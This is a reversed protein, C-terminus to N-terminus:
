IKENKEGLNFEKQDVTVMTDNHSGGHAVLLIEKKIKEFGTKYKIKDTKMEYPMGNTNWGFSICFGKPKVIRKIEHAYRSFQKIKGFGDYVENIQHISYPPDFLIGDISNNDFKKLFELADLNYDTNYTSNLDNTILQNKFISDNAFPDIWTGILYREILEKIPKISFTNKNPMSWVRNIKTYM